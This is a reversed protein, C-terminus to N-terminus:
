SMDHCRGSCDTQIHKSITWTFLETATILSYLHNIKLEMVFHSLNISWCSVLKPRLFIQIGVRISGMVERVGFETLHVKRKM